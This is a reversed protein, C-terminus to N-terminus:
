NIWAGKSSPPPRISARCCATFRETVRQLVPKISPALAQLLSEMEPTPGTFAKAYTTLQAYDIEAM